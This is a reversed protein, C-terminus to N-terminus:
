VQSLADTPLATSFESFHFIKLIQLFKEYRKPDSQLCM